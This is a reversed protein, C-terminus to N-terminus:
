SKQRPYRELSYRIFRRLLEEGASNVDKKTMGEYEAQNKIMELQQKIVKQLPQRKAKGEEDVRYGM